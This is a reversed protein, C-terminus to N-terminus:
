PNEKQHNWAELAVIKAKAMHEQFQHTLIVHQAQQQELQAEQMQQDVIESLSPPSVIRDLWDHMRQTIKM